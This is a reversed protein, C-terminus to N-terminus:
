FPIEESRRRSEIVCGAALLPFYGTTKSACFERTNKLDADSLQALFRGCLRGFPVVDIYEVGSEDRLKFDTWNALKTKGDVQVLNPQPRGVPPEVTTPTAEPKPRPTGASLPPVSEKPPKREPASVTAEAPDMDEVDQTFRDSLAFANLTAATLARKEAMKLATNECERPRDIYKSEMTSCVGIGDGVVTGDSERRIQCRVVYRYVGVSTGSTEMWDFERDGHFRNKWKKQRKAWKVERDHDVENEIIEYHAVCLACKVLREAGPKLLTPKTGTGPIQGYDRGEELAKAIVESWEKHCEILEAPRVAPRIMTRPAQEVVALATVEPEASM